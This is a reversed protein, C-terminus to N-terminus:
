QLDMSIKLYFFLFQSIKLYFFLFQTIAQLTPVRDWLHGFLMFADLCALILMAQSKAMFEDTVIRTVALLICCAYICAHMMINQSTMSQSIGANADEESCCSDWPQVMSGLSAYILVFSCILVDLSIPSCVTWVVVGHFCLISAVFAQNWTRFSPDAMLNVNQRVFEQENISEARNRDMIHMTLVVYFTFSAACIVFLGSINISHMYYADQQQNSTHSLTPPIVVATANTLPDKETLISASFVDVQLVSVPLHANNAPLVFHNHPSKSQCFSFPAGTSDHNSTTSGGAHIDDDCQPGICRCM